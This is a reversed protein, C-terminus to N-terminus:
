MCMHENSKLWADMRMAHAGPRLIWTALFEEQGQGQGQSTYKTISAALEVMWVLSCVKKGRIKEVDVVDVHELRRRQHEITCVSGPQLLKITQTHYYKSPDTVM